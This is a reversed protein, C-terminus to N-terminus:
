IKRLHFNNIIRAEAVPVDCCFNSFSESLGILEHNEHSLKFSCKVSVQLVVCYRDVM